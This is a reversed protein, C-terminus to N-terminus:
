QWRCVRDQSSGTWHGFCLSSQCSLKNRLKKKYSWRQWRGMTSSATSSIPAATERFMQPWPMYTSANQLVSRTGLGGQISKMAKYISTHQWMSATRVGHWDIPSLATSCISLRFCSENQKQERVAKKQPRPCTVDWSFRWWWAYMLRINEHSQHNLLLLVLGSFNRADRVLIWIRTGKKGGTIGEHKAGTFGSASHSPM